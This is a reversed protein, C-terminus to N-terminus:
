TLSILEGNGQFSSTFTVKGNIDLSLSFSEILVPGSYGNATIDAPIVNIYVTALPNSFYADTMTKLADSYGSAPYIWTFSSDTDGDLQLSVEQTELDTVSSSDNSSEVLFWGRITQIDSSGIAIDVLVVEGANLIDFYEKNLDNFQTLSISVDKLKGVRTKFGNTNTEICTDEELEVSMDISGTTICDQTSVPIFTGDGTVPGVIPSSFTVTGTLYDISLIQASDIEVGNDFFTFSASRDFIQKSTDDIQFSDGVTNSFAEGTFATPTGGRKIDFQYTTDPKYNGDASINFDKLGYIRSKFGSTNTLDTNEQLTDSLNLSSNEAPIDYFTINDSSIQVKKTYGATATM